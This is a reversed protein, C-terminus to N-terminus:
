PYPYLCQVRQQQLELVIARHETRLLEAGKTGRSEAVDLLDTIIRDALADAASLAGTRRELKTPLARAPSTTGNTTPTLLLGIASAVSAVSAPPSPPSTVMGHTNWYANEARKIWEKDGWRESASM